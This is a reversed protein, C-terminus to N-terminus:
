AVAEQDRNGEMLTRHGAEILSINFSPGSAEV